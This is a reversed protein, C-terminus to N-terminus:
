RIQVPTSAASAPVDGRNERILPLAALRGLWASRQQWDRLRAARQAATPAARLPAALTRAVQRGALATAGTSIPAALAGHALATMSAVRGTGSPNAFRSLVKEADAVTAVDALSRALQDLGTSGFLIQRGNPSLGRFATSFRAGSWLPNGPAYGMRSAIASAVQNWADAGMAKRAQMLSTLDASAKSGAMQTLRDFVREPAASADTGIIKALTSRRQNVIAAINNAREWAALADPGGHTAITSRLDETLAGYLRRLEPMSTGAEPLISGNLYSGVRTRLDKIGQYALGDPHTAAEAVLELAHGLKTEGSNQRRSALDAFAQFTASLPRTATPNVLQDVQDYLRNLVQGSRGDIWGALGERAAEGASLPTAATGGGYAAATRDLTQGLQETTQEAARVLPTGVIPVERLARGVAQTGLSADPSAVRPVDVGLRDAADVLARAEPSSASLASRAANIGMGIARGALPVGLGLGAGLEAARLPDEGRTLADAAGIGAGSAAGYGAMEPLTGSLGLLRAGTTSAALPALAAAGGAFNAATSAIPHDREFQADRANEHALNEAYREAFTRAHSITTDSPFLPALGAYTGANAKNLLGGVIPIGEATARALNDPTIPAPADGYQVFRPGGASGADGAGGADGDGWRVFFPEAM